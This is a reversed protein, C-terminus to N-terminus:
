KVRTRSFVADLGAEGVIMQQFDPARPRNFRM